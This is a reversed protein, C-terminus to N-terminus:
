DLLRLIEDTIVRNDILWRGLVQRTEAGSFPPCGADRAAGAITRLVRAKINDAHDDIRTAADEWEAVRIVSSNGARLTPEYVAALDRLQSERLLLLAGAPPLTPAGALQELARGVAALDADDLTVRMTMVTTTTRVGVSATKNRLRMSGGPNAPVQRRGITVDFSVSHHLNTVAPEGDLYHFCGLIRPVTRDKTPIVLECEPSRGFRLQGRRVPLRAGFADVIM